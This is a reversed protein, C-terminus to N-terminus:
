NDDPMARPQTAADLSQRIQRQIQQSQARADGAPVSGTAAPLPPLVPSAVSSLQKKALLGVILLALLLGIVGFVRM